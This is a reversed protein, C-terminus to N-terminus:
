VLTDLTRRCPMEDDEEHINFRREIGARATRFCDRHKSETGNQDNCKGAASRGNQHVSITQHWNNVTPRIRWM